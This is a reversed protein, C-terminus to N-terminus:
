DTKKASGVKEKDAIWKMGLPSIKTVYGYQQFGTKTEMLYGNTRLLAGFERWWNESRNKGSGFLQKQVTDNNPQQAKSQFPSILSSSPDPKLKSRSRAM